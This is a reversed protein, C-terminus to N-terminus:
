KVSRSTSLTRKSFQLLPWLCSAKLIFFLSSFFLFSTIPQPWLTLRTQTLLGLTPKTNPSESVPYTSNKQDLPANVPVCFNDLNKNQHYPVRSLLLEMQSSIYIYTIYISLSFFFFFIYTLKISTHSVILITLYKLHMDHHNPTHTHTYKSLIEGM